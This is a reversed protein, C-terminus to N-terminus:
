QFVAKLQITQGEIKLQIIYIGKRNLETINIKAERNNIIKSMLLKGELDFIEITSINLRFHKINIYENAPNPYISIENEELINNVDTIIFESLYLEAPIKIQVTDYVVFTDVEIINVTDMVIITDTKFITDIQQILITDMIPFVSDNAALISIENQSLIRNYMRLDDVCGTFPRPSTNALNPHNSGVYLNTSNNLIYSPNYIINGEIHGDVFIQMLEKENRQMLIHHWKEDNVKTTSLVQSYKITSNNDSGAYQGYSLMGSRLHAQSNLALRFPYSEQTRGNWTCLIRSGGTMVQSKPSKIWLSIAFNDNGSFNIQPQNKIEIYDDIGDFQYAKNLKNNRDTTLTAGHIEIAHNGFQTSDNANGDFPYYAVLGDSFNVQSNIAICTFLLTLSLIFQKM